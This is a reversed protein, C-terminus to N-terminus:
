PRRHDVHRGDQPPHECDHAMQRAPEPSAHRTSTPNAALSRPNTGSLSYVPALLYFLAPGPHSWGFRSYPGVEAHFKMADGVRLALIAQDGYHYYPRGYTAVVKVLGVVFALPLVVISLPWATWSSRRRHSAPQAGSM